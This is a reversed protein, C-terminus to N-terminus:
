CPKTGMGISAFSFGLVAGLRRLAHRLDYILAASM